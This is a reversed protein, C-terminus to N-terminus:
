CCCDYKMSVAIGGYARDIMGQGNHPLDDVGCQLFKRCSNNTDVIVGATINGRARFIFPKRLFQGGRAFEHVDFNQIMDDDTVAVM